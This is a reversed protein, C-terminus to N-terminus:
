DRLRRVKGVLVVGGAITTDIWASQRADRQLTIALQVVISVRMILQEFFDFLPRKRGAKNQILNLSSM